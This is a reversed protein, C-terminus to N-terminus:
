ETRREVPQRVALIAIILRGRSYIRESRDFAIEDRDFSKTKVARKRKRVSRFSLNVVIM